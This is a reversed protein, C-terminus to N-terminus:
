NKFTELLMQNVEDMDFGYIDDYKKGKPLDYWELMELEESNKRKKAIIELLEYFGSSGGCDELPAAHEGAICQPFLVEETPKKYPTITHRWDDGFDYVYNMKKTQGNFFDSLFTKTADYKKHRSGFYDDEDLEPISISDSSYYAGLHFQYLHDDEWNMVSQIVIHLDHFTFVEPVIVTRYIKPDTYELTIKLKHAM